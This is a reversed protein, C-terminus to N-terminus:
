KLKLKLDSFQTQSKEVLFYNQNIIDSHNTPTGYIGIDNM